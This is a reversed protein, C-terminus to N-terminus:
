NSELLPASFSLCHQLNSLWNWAKKRSPAQEKEVRSLGVRIETEKKMHLNSGPAVHSAIM